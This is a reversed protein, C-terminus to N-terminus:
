ELKKKWEAAQAPRRTAGYLRVISQIAESLRSKNPIPIMAEHEKM